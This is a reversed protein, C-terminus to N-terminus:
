EELRGTLPKRFFSSLLRTFHKYYLGELPTKNEYVVNEQGEQRTRGSEDIFTSDFRASLYACVTISSMILKKRRKKAFNLLKVHLYYFVLSGASLSVRSTDSFLQMCGITSEMRDRKQYKWSINRDTSDKVVKEAACVAKRGIESRM